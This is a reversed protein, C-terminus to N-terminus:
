AGNTELVVLCRALHDFGLEMNLNERGLWSAHARKRGGPVRAAMLCANPRVVIPLAKAEGQGDSGEVGQLPGDGENLRQCQYWSPRLDKGNKSGCIMSPRASQAEAVGTPRTVWGAPANSIARPVALAVLGLAAARAATAIAFAPGKSRWSTSSDSARSATVPSAEKSSVNPISRGVAIARETPRLPRM